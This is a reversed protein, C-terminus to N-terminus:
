AMGMAENLRESQRAQRENHQEIQFLCDDVIDEDTSKADYVGVLNEPRIALIKSSTHRISLLNQGDYVVYAPTAAKIDSRLKKLFTSIDVM